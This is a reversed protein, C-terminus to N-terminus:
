YEPQFTVDQSLQWSFPILFYKKMLCSSHLFSLSSNKILPFEAVLVNRYFHTVKPWTLFRNKFLKILRCQCYLSNLLHQHKILRTVRHKCEKQETLHFSFIPFAFVVLSRSSECKPSKNKKKTKFHLVTAGGCCQARTLGLCRLVWYVCLEELLAPWWMWELLGTDFSGGVWGVWGPWTTLGQILIKFVPQRVMPESSGLPFCLSQNKFPYVTRKNKAVKNFSAPSKEGVCCLKDPTEGWFCFFEVRHWCCLFSRTPSASLIVLLFVFLVPRRAAQAIDGSLTFFINAPQNLEFWNLWCQVLALIALAVNM